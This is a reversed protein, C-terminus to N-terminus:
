GADDNQKDDVDADRQQPPPPDDQLIDLSATDLDEFQGSRVAWAGLAMTGHGCATSFGDKHWFLVGFHAGSDNPPVIFGGYMDAHGRPENVLLRRLKDETQLVTYSLKPRAFSQRFVGAGPRFQLKAVIDAQVQATATATLAIVPTGAPLKETAIVSGDDLLATFFPSAEVLEFERLGGDSLGRLVEDDSIYVRSLPDRFSGPDPSTM